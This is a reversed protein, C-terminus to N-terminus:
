PTGVKGELAADLEAASVRRRPAPASPVVGGGITKVLAAVEAAPVREGEPVKAPAAERARASREARADYEEAAAMARRAVEPTLASLGLRKGDKALGQERPLQRAVRIVDGCMWGAAYLALVARVGADRSPPGLPMRRAGMADALADAAAVVEPWSQPELFDWLHQNRQAYDARVCPELAMADDFNRPAPEQAKEAGGGSRDPATQASGTLDKPDVAAAKEPQTQTPQAPSPQSRARPRTRAPTHGSALPPLRASMDPAQGTSQGRVHHPCDAGCTGSQHRLLLRRSAKQQRAKRRREEEVEVLTGHDDYDHLMLGHDVEEVLGPGCSGDAQTKGCDVLGKLAKRWTKPLGPLDEISDLPIFGGTNGGQVYAKLILWLLVTEYGGIRIAKQTKVSSPFEEKVTIM